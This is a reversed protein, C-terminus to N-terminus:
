MHPGVGGVKSGAVKWLGALVVLLLLVVLHLAILIRIGLIASLAILVAVAIDYILIVAGFGFMFPFAASQTSYSSSAMRIPYSFTIVEAIVVAVLALTFREGHWGEPILLFAVIVTVAITAALLIGYITAASTSRSM